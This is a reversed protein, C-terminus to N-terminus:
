CKDIYELGLYKIMQSNLTLVWDWNSGVNHMLKNLSPFGVFPKLVM